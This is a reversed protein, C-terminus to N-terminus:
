LDTDRRHQRMQRMSRDGIMVESRQMGLMRRILDLVSGIVVEFSRIIIYIGFALFALFALVALIWFFSELM